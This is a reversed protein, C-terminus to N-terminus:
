DVMHSNVGNAQIGFKSKILSHWVLDHGLPFKWLFKGLLTKSKVLVNGLRHDVKTIQLLFQMGILWIITKGEGCLGEDVKQDQWGQVFDLCLYIIYLGVPCILNSKLLYRRWGVRPHLLGRTEFM